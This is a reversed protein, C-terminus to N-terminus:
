HILLKMNDLFYKKKFLTFVFFSKKDFADFLISTLIIAEADILEKKPKYGIGKPSIGAIIAKSIPIILYAAFNYPNLSM